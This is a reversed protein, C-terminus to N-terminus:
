ELASNIIRNVATIPKKPLQFIDIFKEIMEILNNSSNFKIGHSRNYVTTNLDNFETEPTLIILHDSDKIWSAGMECLCIPSNLYNKSFLCLFFIDRKIEKKIEELFDRGLEVGTGPTSTCFINETSIGINELLLVLKDAYNKDISSHSIFIKKTKKSEVKRLYDIKKTLIEPDVVPKLETKEQPIVEGLELYDMIETFEENIFARRQAYTSFKGQIFPWFSDLSRHTKIWRPIKDMLKPSTLVKKRLENYEQQDAIGGTARSVLINLLSEVIELDENLNKINM